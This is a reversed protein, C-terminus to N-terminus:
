PMFLALHKGTTCIQLLEKFIQTISQLARHWDKKGGEAYSIIEQLSLGRRNSKTVSNPIVKRHIYNYIAAKHEGPFHDLRSIEQVEGTDFTYHLPYDKLISDVRKYITQKHGKGHIQLM